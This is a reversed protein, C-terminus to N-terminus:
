PNIDKVVALTAGSRTVSYITPEDDLLSLDKNRRTSIIAYDAEEVM